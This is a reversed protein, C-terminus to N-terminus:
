YIVECKYPPCIIQFSKFKFSGPLPRQLETRHLVWVKTGLNARHCFHIYHRDRYVVLKWMCGPNDFGSSNNCLNSKWLRKIMPFSLVSRSVYHAASGVLTVDPWGHMIVVATHMYLPWTNGISLNRYYVMCQWCLSNKRGWLNNFFPSFQISSVFKICYLGMPMM